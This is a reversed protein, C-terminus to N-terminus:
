PPGGNRRAVAQWTRCIHSGDRCSVQLVPTPGKAVVIVTHAFGASRKPLRWRRRFVIVPDDALARSLVTRLAEVNAGDAGYGDGRGGRRHGHRAKGVADRLHRQWALVDASRDWGARHAEPATYPRRTPTDRGVWDM